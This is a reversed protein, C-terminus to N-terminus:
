SREQPWVQEWNKVYDYTQFGATGTKPDIIRVTEGTPCWLTYIGLCGTEPDRWVTGVIIDAEAGLAKFPGMDYKQHYNTLSEHATEM